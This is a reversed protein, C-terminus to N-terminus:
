VILQLYCKACKEVDDLARHAQKWDEHFLHKHLEILKPFKRVEMHKLGMLMTCATNKSYLLGLLKKRKSYQRYIESLLIKMDFEINHAVIIDVLKLDEFLEDFCEDIYVGKEQTMENTIGHIHSNQISDRHDDKILFSVEKVIEHTTNDILVYAIEIMRASAYYTQYFPHANKYTPFGTTETDLVLIM